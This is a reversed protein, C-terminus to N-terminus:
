SQRSCIQGGARQRICNQKRKDQVRSLKENRRRCLTELVTAGEDSPCARPLVLAHVQTEGSARPTHARLAFDGTIVKKKKAPYIEPPCFDSCARRFCRPPLWLRVSAHRAVHGIYRCLQHRRVWGISTLWQHRNVCNYGQPEWCFANVGWWNTDM